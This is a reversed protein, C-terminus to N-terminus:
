GGPHVPFAGVANRLEETEGPVMSAFINVQELPDAQLDYIEEGKTRDDYIYKFTHAPTRDIVGYTDGLRLYSFRPSEGALLSHGTGPHHSPFVWAISAGDPAVDIQRAFELNGYTVSPDPDYILLPPKVEERLPQAFAGM